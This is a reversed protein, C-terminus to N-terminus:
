AGFLRKWEDIDDDSVSGPKESRERLEAIRHPRASGDSPPSASRAHAGINLEAVFAKSPVIAALNVRATAIIELDNSVVALARGHLRAQERILDDASRGHSSVVRVRASGQGPEVVGDFVVICDINRQEAFVAIASLLDLRAREIGFSNLTRKLDPSSHLVNYADILYIKKM